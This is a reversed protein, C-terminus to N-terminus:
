RYTVPTEKRFKESRKFEEDIRCIQKERDKIEKNIESKTFTSWESDIPRWISGEPLKYELYYRGGDYSSVFAPTIRYNYKQSTPNKKSLLSSFLAKLM